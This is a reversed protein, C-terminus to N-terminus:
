EAAMKTKVYFQGADYLLINHVKKLQIGMHLFYKQRWHTVIIPGSLQRRLCKKNFPCSAIFIKASITNVSFFM